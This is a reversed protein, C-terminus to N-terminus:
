QDNVMDTINSIDRNLVVDKAGVSVVKTGINPLLNSM